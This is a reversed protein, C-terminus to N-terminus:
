VEEMLHRLRRLKRVPVLVAQHCICFTYIVQELSNHLLAEVLLRVTLRGIARITASNRLTNDTLLLMIFDLLAAVLFKNKSTEEGM